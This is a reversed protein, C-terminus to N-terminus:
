NPVCVKRNNSGGGTSRCGFAASAYHACYAASDTYGARKLDADECSLFCDMQGTSEFPACVEPMGSPCEGDVACCDSDATCSHTCYGGEVKDLCVADGKLAGPEVATYCQDASTCSQGTTPPTAGSGDDGCAVAVVSLGLCLSALARFTNM